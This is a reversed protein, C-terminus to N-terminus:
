LLVDMADWLLRFSQALRSKPTDINVSWVLGGMKDTSHKPSGRHLRGEEPQVVYGDYFPIVCKVPTIIKLYRLVLTRTGKHHPLTSREFRAL